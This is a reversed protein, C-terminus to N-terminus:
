KEAPGALRGDVERRIAEVEEDSLGESQMLQSVLAAPSGAFFRQMVEHLSRRGMQQRTVLPRYVDLRGQRRSALFGKDRLIRMMTLVTNYAMPKVPRLSQQVQRVTARGLEWLRDMIVTEVPTLRRSNTKAM